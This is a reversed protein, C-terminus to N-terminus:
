TRKRPYLLCRNDPATLVAKLWSRVDLSFRLALQGLPRRNLDKRQRPEVLLLRATLETGSEAVVRLPFGNLQEGPAAWALITGEIGNGESNPDFVGVDDVFVELAIHVRDEHITIEAINPASEAGTLNIWDAHADPATFAAVISLAVLASFEAIPFRM